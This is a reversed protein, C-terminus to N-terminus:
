KKKKTGSKRKVKKFGLGSEKKYQMYAVRGTLERGSKGVYVKKGEPGTLWHGSTQRAKHGKRKVAGKTTAKDVCAKPNVWGQLMEETELKRSNKRSTSSKKDITTLWSVRTVFATVWYNFFLDLQAYMYDIQSTDRQDRDANLMNVLPSYNSLRSRVLEQIRPDDHFFYRYSSPLDELANSVIQKIKVHQNTFAELRNPSFNSHTCHQDKGTRMDEQSSFMNIDEEDDDIVATSHLEAQSSTAAILRRHLRKLNPHSDPYEPESDDVILTEFADDDDSLLAPRQPESDSLDCDLGLSFSSAEFDTM